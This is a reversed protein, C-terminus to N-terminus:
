ATGVTLMMGRPNVELRFFCQKRFSFVNCYCIINFLGTKSGSFAMFPTKCEEPFATRTCACM